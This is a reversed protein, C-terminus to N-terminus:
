ILRKVFKSTSFKLTRLSICKLKRVNPSIFNSVISSIFIQLMPNILNGSFNKWKQFKLNVSGHRFGIVTGKLLHCITLQKYSQSPPIVLTPSTTTAFNDTDSGWGTSLEIKSKHCFNLPVRLWDESNVALYLRVRASRSIALIGCYLCM